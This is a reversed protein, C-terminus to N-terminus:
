YHNAIGQFGSFLGKILAILREKRKGKVIIIAELHMKILSKLEKRLEPYHYQRYLIIYSKTMEYIRRSGYYSVRITKEGIHCEVPDGVRHVLIGDYNMYSIYGKKKARLCFEIDNCDMFFSGNFGGINLALAVPTLMGSTILWKAEYSGRKEPRSSNPRITAPGMLCERDKNMIIAAKKFSKFDVWVSDQNMTMLYDFRNKLAYELAFNFSTPFGSNGGGEIYEIKDIYESIRYDSSVTCPTNEWVIIHDVDQYYSNISKRLLDKNPYYSNVVVLIKM